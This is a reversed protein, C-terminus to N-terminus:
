PNLARTVPCGRSRQVTAVSRATPLRRRHTQSQRVRSQECAENYTAAGYGLAGMADGQQWGECSRFPALPAGPLSLVISSEPAMMLATYRAFGGFGPLM